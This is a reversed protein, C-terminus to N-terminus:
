PRSSRSVATSCCATGSMNTETGRGQFNLPEKLLSMLVTINSKAATKLPVAFAGTQMAKSGIGFMGRKSPRRDACLRRFKIGLEARNRKWTMHTLRHKTAESGCASDPPSPVHFVRLYLSVPSNPVGLPSGLVTRFELTTKNRLNM